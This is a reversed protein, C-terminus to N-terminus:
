AGGARRRRIALPHLGPGSSRPRLGALGLRIGVEIMTPYEALLFWTGWASPGRDELLRDNLWHAKYWFYLGRDRGLAAALAVKVDAYDRFLGPDARAEDRFRLLRALDWSDRAHFQATFTQRSGEYKSFYHGGHHGFDGCYRYGAAAMSSAVEPLRDALVAPDVAVAMDILPKAPM